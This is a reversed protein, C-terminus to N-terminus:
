KVSICFNKRRRPVQKSVRIKLIPGSLWFNCYSENFHLNPDSFIFHMKRRNRLNGCLLKKIYKQMHISSWFTIHRMSKCHHATESYLELFWQNIYYIQITWCFLEVKFLGFGIIKISNMLVIKVMLKGMGLDAMNNSFTLFTMKVKKWGKSWQATYVRQYLNRFTKTAWLSKPLFLIM